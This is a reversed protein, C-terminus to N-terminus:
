LLSLPNVGKFYTVFIELRQLYSALVFNPLVTAFHNGALTTALLEVGVAADISVILKHTALRVMCLSNAVDGHPALVGNLLDDEIQVNKPLCGRILTDM